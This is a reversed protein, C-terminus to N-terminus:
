KNKNTKTKLVGFFIVIFSYFIMTLMSIQGREDQLKLTVLNRKPISVKHTHTYSILTFTKYNKMYFSFYILDNLLWM